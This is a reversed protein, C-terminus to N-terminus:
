SEAGAVPHAGAADAMADAKEPAPKVERAEVDVPAAKAAAKLAQATGFILPFAAFALGILPHGLAGGVGGWGYEEDCRALAEGLNEMRENTWVPGAPPLAACVVGGAMKVAKTWGQANTEEEKAAEKQEAQEQAQGAAEHQAIEEQAIGSLGAFELVQPGEPQENKVVKEKAM